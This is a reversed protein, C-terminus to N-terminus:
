QGSGGAWHHPRAEQSISFRMADPSLKQILVSLSFHSPGDLWDNWAGCAGAVTWMACIPCPAWLPWVGAPKPGWSRGSGMGPYARKVVVGRGVSAPDGGQAQRGTM